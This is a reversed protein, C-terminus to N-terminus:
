WLLKLGLQVQRPSNAQTTIQGFNAAVVSTNPASFRVTNLANFAEARFQLRLRETFLFDKFVSLDFNSTGPGRLDAITPSTNGMTFAAPQSFVSTDFYRNLRAHIDGELKGSTGNNNALGRPSGIGAVNNASISLPTGSQVTAIGQAQWGGAFANVGRNWGAGFKRGRGFPLEYLGGMVFRQAIDYTTLARSNRIDYSNAHSMGNDMAKAKAYSGEFQVGKSFRKSFSIQLAHYTSSSGSSYLPIINTFQPYPRLLQARSVKATALVGSNVIGFFPNDVQENLKSGLSMYQPDLQNIDLGGEDNRSLQLGRTGVYAVELLIQGPLNRQINFNWQASYPTM